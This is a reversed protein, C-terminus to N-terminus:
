RGQAPFTFFDKAEVGLLKAVKVLTKVSPSRDGRLIQGLHGKSFGSEPISGISSQKSFGVTHHEGTRYVRSVAGM